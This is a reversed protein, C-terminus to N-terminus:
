TKELGSVMSPSQISHDYSRYTSKSQSPVPVIEPPIYPVLSVDSEPPIYPVFSDDSEPPIYPRFSGDSDTPSIYPLFVNDAMNPPTVSILVADIPDTPPQVHSPNGLITPEQVCLVNEMLSTRIYPHVDFLHNMYELM